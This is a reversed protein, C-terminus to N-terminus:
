AKSGRVQTLSLVHGDPDQFWAVRAGSPATWIGLDDQEFHGYRNFAVNRKVLEAATARIDAVEWGLATYPAPKMDQVKQVRLMTGGADVVLAFPDDSAVPLGLIGEYFARSRPADTTALFAIIKNKSLM